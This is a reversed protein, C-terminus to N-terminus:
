THPGAPHEAPPLPPKPEAKPWPYEERRGRHWALEEAGGGEQWHERAEIERSEVDWKDFVVNSEGEDSSSPACDGLWIGAASPM